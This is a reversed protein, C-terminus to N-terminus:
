ENENEGQYLSVAKKFYHIFEVLDGLNQINSQIARGVHELKYWGVFKGTGYHLILIDSDAPNQSISCFVEFGESNNREVDLIFDEPTEYSAKVATFFDERTILSIM